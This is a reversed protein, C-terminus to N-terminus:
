NHRYGQILSFIKMIRLFVSFLIPTDLSPFIVFDCFGLIVVIDLFYKIFRM